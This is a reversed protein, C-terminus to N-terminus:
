TIFSTISATASAKASNFISTVRGPIAALAPAPLPVPCNAMVVVPGPLLVLPHPAPGTPNKVLLGVRGEADVETIEASRRM